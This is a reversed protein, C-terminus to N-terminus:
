SVQLIGEPLKNKSLADGYGDFIPPNNVFEILGACLYSIVIAFHIIQLCKSFSFCSSGVGIIGRDNGNDNNNEKTEMSVLQHDSNISNINM